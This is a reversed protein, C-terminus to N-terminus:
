NLAALSPVSSLTKELAKELLKDNAFALNNEVTKRVNDPLNRKLLESSMQQCEDYKGAWYACVSLELLMGYDYAWQQVFLIDATQPISQAIKGILYGSEYDQKQEFLHMLHYLPEMRSKRYQFAKKYSAVLTEFPMKLAEQITAVRYLAFFVEQDWGGMKARKEYNELAKPLNGADHYSQALYFVYRSNDPEDKLAEEFVMADKEYKKPDKSRAGDTLVIQNVNELIAGHKAADCCVAEHLVGVWKWDLKANILAIRTYKTGSHSLMVYYVDKDLEPLKFNQEYAYYNDADIFLIYDGKTRALDLAQNRNHGFNKWPREHLEGPINKEAMYKKIIEQTNDTSGTDVIVWYDIIPLVSALCRTIVASEDKVIMNLCIKPRAVKVDTETAAAIPVKVNTETATATPAYFLFLTLLLVTQVFHLM